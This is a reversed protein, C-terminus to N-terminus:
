HQNTKSYCESCLWNETADDYYCIGSNSDISKWCECCHEHWILSFKNKYLRKFEDAKEKPLIYEYWLDPNKLFKDDLEKLFYTLEVLKYAM